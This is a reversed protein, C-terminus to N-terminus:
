EVVVRRGDYVPKVTGKKRISDIIVDIRQKGTDKVPIGKLAYEAYFSNTAGTYVRNDQIAKGGVAAKVLKGSEIRYQIGSVAPRDKLLIEKLRRGNIRFTVVANHFPDMNVVDERTIKGEVLDSRIGGVNEFEIETKYMERIADTVLHYPAM